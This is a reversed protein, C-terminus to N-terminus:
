SRRASAALATRWAQLAEGEERALALADEFTHGAERAELLTVAFRRAGEPVLAAYRATCADGDGSCSKARRCAARGCLHPIGLLNSLHHLGGSETKTM